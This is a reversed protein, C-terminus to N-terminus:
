GNAQLQAVMAAQSPLSPQAGAKGVALAGAVTGWRVSEALSKGAVQAAIFAGNFADGAAVTDVVTAPYPPVLRAEDPTACWVGQEGLTILVTDVGWGQIITAAEAATAADTVPFGVLQSAEVENPTLVTVGPWLDAPISETVPAPDLLVPVQAANAQAIAAQVIALPIGLDMLLWQATPLQETLYALEATGITANAGAACAITNEGTASVVISAVGSNVDPNVGLGQTGVGAATLAISLTQGFDDGGVQGIFEVPVGLRAIAVAQNAGKGGFASFFEHGILTEGAKPLRPTKVVLDMNISGLVLVTM